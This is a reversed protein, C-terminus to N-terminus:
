QDDAMTSAGANCSPSSSPEGEPQGMLSEACSLGTIYYLPAAGGSQALWTQPALASRPIAPAQGTGHSPSSSVQVAWSVNSLRALGAADFKPVKTNSECPPYTFITRTFPRGPAARCKPKGWVAERTQM